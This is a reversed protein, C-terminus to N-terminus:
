APVKIWVRNAAYAPQSTQVYINLAQLLATLSTVGTGGRAVSLTGSTIDGAPHTHNTDSKGALGSNLATTTAKAALLADAEAQSYVDLSTRATAATTGGTGGRALSLTGSTIDSASHNHSTNAKGALGSTLATNTAKDDLLADAEAKSYVSLSSRATATSSGGTGGNAVPLIGFVDASALNVSMLTKWASGSWYEWAGITENFGMKYKRPSAPRRPTTWAGFKQDMWDRVDSVKDSTIVSVGPDVRVTALPIQYVGTDTQTVGPPNTSGSTGTLVKPLIRQAITPASLNLELVVLDMRVGASPAAIPITEIATSYFMYGRLIASGTAMKVQRGSGDGTVKLVNDGFSGVMGDSAAMERFLRGYEIDTTDQAVYPWSTMTM